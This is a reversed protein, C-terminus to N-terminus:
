KAWTRCWSSVLFSATLIADVMGLVPPADVLILDYTQEFAAMLERMRQSSLLNPDGPVPGATVIDIYSDSSQISSQSPVNADTTLLTSLRSM